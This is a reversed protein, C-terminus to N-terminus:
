CTYTNCTRLIIRSNSSGSIKAPLEMRNNKDLETERLQVGGRRFRTNCKLKGLMNRRARYKELPCSTDGM